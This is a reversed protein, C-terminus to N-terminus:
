LVYRSMDEDVALEGLRENVYGADILLGDVGAEGATFSIEELLKEMV